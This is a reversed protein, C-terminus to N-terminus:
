SMQCFWVKTRYWVDVKGNVENALFVKELEMMAIRHMPHSEDFSYSCSLYRGKVGNFDFAQSFDCEWYGFNGTGFFEEFHADGFYRHDITSLDTSFNQLFTNYQAMFPSRDDARDNWILVVWGGPKLIRLFEKSAAQPEFWHFAQAATIFDVSRDPLTTSEATGHISHFNEVKSYLREAAARMDANPEVAFVPNGYELFLGTLKGTGSGIDAIRSSPKMAFKNRMMEILAPPYGPRYLLYNEVTKSFRTTSSNAM